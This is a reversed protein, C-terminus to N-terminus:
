ASRWGFLRGAASALDPVGALARGFINSSSNRHRFNPTRAAPQRAACPAPALCAQPWGTGGDAAALPFPTSASGGGVGSLGAGPADQPAAAVQQAPHALCAPLRCLTLAQHCTVKSWSRADGQRLRGQQVMLIVVRFDKQPRFPIMHTFHEALAEDHAVRLPAPPSRGQM